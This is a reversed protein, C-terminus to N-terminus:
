GQERPISVRFVAGGGPRNRAEIRGGHGEVIQRALTLGLGSGKTRRTVFPQFVSEEDGPTLGEGRDRVEFVLTDEGELYAALEVPDSEPSAQVANRLLNTLVQEMRPRDLPWPPLGEPRGEVRVREGDLAEAAGRAVLLPDESRPRVEGTRAFELVENALQELRVAERVVTEAANRAADGEPLRRLILQAHGKLGALPNRLEHGLVASMQGLRKLQRDRELQAAAREARLSLRWFVVTAGLLVLATCAGIVLTALVHASLHQVAVPDFEIVIRADALAEWPLPADAPAGTRARWGAGRGAGVFPGTVRARAGPGLDLQPGPGGEVPSWSTVAPTGASAILAGDPGIVAVYRVGESGLEGLLEKLAEPAVAGGAAHLSHRASAVLERALMRVLPATSGEVALYASLGTGLLAIFLAVATLLLGWRSVKGAHAGIRARLSRARAREDVATATYCARARAPRPRAGM